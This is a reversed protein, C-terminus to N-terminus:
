PGATASGVEVLRPKPQVTTQQSIISTKVKQENEYVARLVVQKEGVTGPDTVKTEGAPLTASAVKKEPPLIKQKETVQRITIVTLPARPAGIIVEEGAHLQKPRLGPNLALFQKVTLAFRRAIKDPSDGAQVVYKRPTPAALLFEVAKAQDRVVDEAPVDQSVAAVKEKFRPQELLKEGQPTVRALTAALVQDALAKTPLALVFKGNSTISVAQVVVHVKGQLLKIADDPRLVQPQLDLWPEKLASRGPLGQAAQDILGRRVREAAQHDHVYAVIKGDVLIARPPGACGGVRLAAFLVLLVIVALLVVARLFRVEAQLAALTIPPRAKDPEGGIPDRTM